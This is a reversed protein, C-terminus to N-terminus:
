CKLPMYNNPNYWQPNQPFLNINGQIKTQSLFSQLSPINIKNCPSDGPDNERYFATSKTGTQMNRQDDKFKFTCCAATWMVKPVNVPFDDEQQYDSFGEKGFFRAKSAGFVTSPIAGVLIVLQVNQAESMACNKRGWMVLSSECQVRISADLSLFLTLTLLRQWCRRRKDQAM